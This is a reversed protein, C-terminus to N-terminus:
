GFLQMQRNGAAGSLGDPVRIDNLGVHAERHCNACLVVCKEIEDWIKGSHSRTMKTVDNDKNPDTHHFELAASHRNYGCVACGASVKYAQIISTIKRKKELKLEAKKDLYYRSRKYNSWKAM